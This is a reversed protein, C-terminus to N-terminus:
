TTQKKPIPEKFAGKDKLIKLLVVTLFASILYGYWAVNLDTDANLPQNESQMYFAVLVAYANNLFHAFITYWLSGTWWYVYGFMAGLFLRTFFGYFQFHIASFVVAAVWIAVHYNKFFRLLTRQLAGRFLFEECVAPILAIVLLNIILSGITKMQLLALTLKMNENEMNRMWDEVSKLFSPLRMQQNQENIWGFVPTCALMLLLVNFLLPWNPKKIGYFQHPKKSETVALFLAPTLFLGFQQATLLIKFAQVSGNLNTKSSIVNMMVDMGFSFYIIIIGILAFVLMGGVALLGLFILQLLPHRESATQTTFNM